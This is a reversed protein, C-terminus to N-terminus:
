KQRHKEDHHHAAAQPVHVTPQPVAPHLGIGVISVIQYISHIKLSKLIWGM